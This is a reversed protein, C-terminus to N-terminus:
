MYMGMMMGPSSIGFLDGMNNQPGSMWGSMGGNMQPRRGFMGNNSPMPYYEGIEQKYLFVNSIM